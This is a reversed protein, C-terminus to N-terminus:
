PFVRPKPLNQYALSWNNKGAEAPLLRNSLSAAERTTRRVSRGFSAYLLM